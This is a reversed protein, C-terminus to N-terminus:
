KSGKGKERYESQVTVRSKPVGSKYLEALFARYTPYSRQIPSVKHTKEESEYQDQYSIPFPTDQDHNVSIGTIIPKSPNKIIPDSSNHNGNSKM